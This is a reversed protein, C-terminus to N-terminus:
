PAHQAREHHDQQGADRQLWGGHQDGSQGIPKARGVPALRMTLDPFMKMLLLAWSQLYM